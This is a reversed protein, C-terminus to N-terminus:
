KGSAKLFNGKADFVLEKGAVEAEFAVVNSASVIRSAEEIRKGSYHKRIYAIAGDPLSELDIEMETQMLRGSPSFSASERLSGELFNAEYDQREKEWNVKTVTPFKKGFAKLVDNPIQIKKSQAALPGLAFLIAFISIMKKM